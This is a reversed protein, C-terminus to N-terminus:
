WDGDGTAPDRPMTRRIMFVMTAQMICGVIVPLMRGAIGSLLLWGELACALAACQRARDREVAAALLGCLIASLGAVVELRGEVDLADPPVAISLLTVMLLGGGLRLVLAHGRRVPHVRARLNWAVLGGLVVAGAAAPLCTQVAGGEWAVMLLCSAALGGQWVLMVGGADPGFLSVFVVMGLLVVLM